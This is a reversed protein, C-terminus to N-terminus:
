YSKFCTIYLAMSCETFIVSHFTTILIIQVLYESQECNASDFGIPCSCKYTAKMPLCRGGNLCPQGACPHDCNDINVGTLADDLMKLPKENIVVQTPATSCCTFTFVSLPIHKYLPTDLGNSWEFCKVSKARGPLGTCESVLEAERPLM